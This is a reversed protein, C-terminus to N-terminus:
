MGFLILLSAFTFAGVAAVIVAVGLWTTDVDDLSNRGVQAGGPATVEQPRHEGAVIVQPRPKTTPPEYEDTRVVAGRGRHMRPMPTLGRLPAPTSSARSQTMPPPPVPLILSQDRLQGGVPVPTTLLMPPAIVPGTGGALAHAIEELEEAADMMNLGSGDSRANLM